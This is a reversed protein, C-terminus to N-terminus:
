SLLERHVIFTDRISPADFDVIRSLAQLSKEIDKVIIGLHGIGQIM